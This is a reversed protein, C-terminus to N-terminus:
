IHKELINLLMIESDSLESKFKLKPTPSVGYTELQKSTVVELVSPHVYYESVVAVTNGLEEAVLELLINKFKKNPSKKQLERAEEAKDITLVCGGWTRFNKSTYHEGTIQELYENIDDSYVPETESANKEYRFIEYGRLESCERILKCIERDEISVNRIVGKKGTYSLELHGKDSKLHKRRLTTLGYSNNTETYYSNGIRLYKSDMIAVILALVREKPWGELALDKEVQRRIIPLSRGFGALDRFKSNQRWEIFKPHYIYQKREKTDYGTALLHGNEHPCIWVNEWAPPIALAKIKEILKKDEIRKGEENLYSFGRGYRKRSYGPQEDTVHRLRYPLKHTNAPM